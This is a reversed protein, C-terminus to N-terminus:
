MKTASVPHRPSPRTNDWLAIASRPPEPEWNTVWFDQIGVQFQVAKTLNQNQETGAAEVFGNADDQSTVHGKPWFKGYTMLLFFFNNLFFLQHNNRLIKNQIHMVGNLFQWIQFTFLSAKHQLKLRM